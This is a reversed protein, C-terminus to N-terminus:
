PGPPFRHRGTPARTRPSPMARARCIRERCLRLGRHCGRQPSDVNEGLRSGVSGDFTVIRILSRRTRESCSQVRCRVQDIEVETGAHQEHARRAEVGMGVLQALVLSQEVVERLTHGAEERRQLLLTVGVAHQEHRRALETPAGGLVAAVAGIVTEPSHLQEGSWRHLAPEVAGDVDAM